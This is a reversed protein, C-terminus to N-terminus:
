IKQRKIKIVVIMSTVGLIGRTLTITIAAGIYGFYYVMPVSMAFGILSSIVTIHRLIKEKNQVILYNTGYISSLTLFLVSIAMIRLVIISDLFEETLFIDVILPAFLFLMVSILSSIIINWKAYVAHKEINRSLFPFFTRTVVSMMQNCLNVFKTGGDLKGNAVSGGFFGLLMVSFSNYLNPMLQNIFVDTSGKISTLISQMNPRIYKIKLKKRIIIISAIGVAFNGCANLLPQLIFDSKERIFIFIAATFLFKLILNLITFYRMKELGQFLWEQILLGCPIYLYTVFMLLRKEYFAPVSFVLATFILACVITLFLKATMVNSYIRSVADIDNKNRAVDRAASYNFGWDVITQFYVVVAAAFAIDGM